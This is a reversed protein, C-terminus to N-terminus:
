GPKVMPPGTRIGFVFNLLSRLLSKKKVAELIEILYEVGAEEAGGHRSSRIPPLKEGEDTAASPAMIADAASRSLDCVVFSGWRCRRPNRAPPIMGCDNISGFM